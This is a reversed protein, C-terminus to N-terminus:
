DGKRQSGWQKRHPSCCCGVICLTQSIEVRVKEFRLWHSLLLWCSCPYGSNTPLSSLFACDPRSVYLTTFRWCDIQSSSNTVLPLHTTWDFSINRFSDSATVSAQTSDCAYSWLCHASSSTVGARCKAEADARASERSEDSTINFLENYWVQNNGKELTLILQRGTKCQINELKPCSTLGFFFFGSTLKEKPLRRKVSPISTM